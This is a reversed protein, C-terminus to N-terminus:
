HIIFKYIFGWSVGSQFMISVDDFDWDVFGTDSNEDNTVFIIEPDKIFSYNEDAVFVGSCTVWGDAASQQPCNLPKNYKYGTPTEGKIEFWYREPTTKGSFRSRLSLSYTAGQMLCEHNVNFRLSDGHWHRNEIHWYKNVSGDAETEELITPIYRDTRHSWMPHYHWGRGDANEADGNVVLEHCPDGLPAFSKESPLEFQFEDMHIIQGPRFNELYFVQGITGDLDTEDWMWETAFTFWENNRGIQSPIIQLTFLVLLFFFHTRRFFCVVCMNSDCAGCISVSKRDYSGGSEGEGKHIARILRPCDHYYNTGSECYSLDGDELTPDEIKLRITVLYNVDQTIPCDMVLKTFDIRFGQWYRNLNTETLTGSEEDYSLIGGDGGSWVSYDVGNDFDHVIRNPCTIDPDSLHSLATLPATEGVIPEPYPREAFAMGLIPTWTKGSDDADDWGRINLKGGAVLFPKEGASFPAGEVTEHPTFTVDTNGTLVIKMSTNDESIPQNDSM